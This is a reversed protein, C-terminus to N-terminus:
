SAGNYNSSTYFAPLVFSILDIIDAIIKFTFPRFIGILLCLIFSHVFFFFFFVKTSCLAGSLFRLSLGCFPLFYNCIVYSTLSKHRFYAIIFSLVIIFPCIIEAYIERFLVHLLGFAWPFISLLILWWSFAFWLWLLVLIPVICFFSSLLYQQHSQPSVPFSM